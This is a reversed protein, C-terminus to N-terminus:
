SVRLKAELKGLETEARAGKIKETGQRSLERWRHGYDEALALLSEIADQDTAALFRTLKCIRIGVLFFPLVCDAHGQIEVIMKKVRWITQDRRERPVKEALFARTRAAVEKSPAKEKKTADTGNVEKQPGDVGDTRVAAGGDVGNTSPQARDTKQKGFRARISDKSMQPKEHWVGEEAPQDIQGLEEQSPRLVNAARQASDSAMDRMLIGADNV